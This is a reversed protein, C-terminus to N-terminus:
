ESGQVISQELEKSQEAFVQAQVRRSAPGIGATREHPHSQACFRLRQQLRCRASASKAHKANSLRRRPVAQRSFNRRIHNLSQDAIERMWDMEYKVAHM